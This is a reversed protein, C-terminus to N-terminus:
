LPAEKLEAFLAALRPVRAAQSRASQASALLSAIQKDISPAGTSNNKCKAAV